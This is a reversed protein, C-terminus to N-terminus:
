SREILQELLAKNMRMVTHQEAETKEIILNFTSVKNYIVQRIREDISDKSYLNILRVRDHQSGIRIIRGNRQELMAPNWPVDANILTSAVQLNLGRAGADTSVLVNAGGETFALRSEERGKANMDGSITTVWAFGSLRKVILQQFKTSRTFIVVKNAVDDDLLDRVYDEIWDLKPSATLESQTHRLRGLINAALASSSTTLLEPSDAVAMLLAIRGVMADSDDAHEADLEDASIDTFDQTHLMEDITARIVEHIRAQFPTMSLTIDSYSESPFEVEVENRKRRLMYPAIRAHLEAHNKYGLVQKFSGLIIYRNRFAWFNGLIDPDIVSFLNFLEEPSNEMPTGTLMWLYETQFGGYVVEIEKTEKNKVTLGKFMSSIKSKWNKIKQAEDMIMIDCYDNVFGSIINYDQYLLEYNVIMIDAETDLFDAYLKERQKPTGDIVIARLDTFRQIESLWQYKLSAPCFVVTRANPMDKRALLIAAIASLTKGLGMQDALIGRKIHVLFNAGVWQFPYPQIKLQDAVSTDMEINPQPTSPAEGQWGILGGFTDRLADYSSLPVTWM